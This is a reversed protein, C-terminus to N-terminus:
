IEFQGICEVHSSRLDRIDYYSHWTKTRPDFDELLLELSLLESNMTTLTLTYRSRFGAERGPGPPMNKKWSERYTYVLSGDDQDDVVFNEPHKIDLRWRLAPNPSDILFGFVDNENQREIFYPARFNTKDQWGITFEGCAGELNVHNFRLIQDIVSQNETEAFSSFASLLLILAALFNRNLM